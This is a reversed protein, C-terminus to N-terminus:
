EPPRSAGALSCGDDKGYLLSELGIRPVLGRRPTRHHRRGLFVITGCIFDHFAAEGAPLLGTGMRMKSRRGISRYPSTPHLRMKGQILVAKQETFQGAVQRLEVFRKRPSSRTPWAAARGPSGGEASPEESQKTPLGPKQALFFFSKSPLTRTIETNQGASKTSPPRAGASQPVRRETASPRGLLATKGLMDARERLKGLISLWGCRSWGKTEHWTGPEPRLGM